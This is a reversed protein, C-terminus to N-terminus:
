MASEHILASIYARYLDRRNQQDGNLAIYTVDRGWQVYPRRNSLAGSLQPVAKFTQDNRVAIVTLSAPFALDYPAVTLFQRRLEELDLALTRLQKESTNGVVLLGGIRVERWDGRKSAAAHAWLPNVFFAVLIGLLCRLVM